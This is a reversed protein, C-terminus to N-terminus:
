SKFWCLHVVHHTQCLTMSPTILFVFFLWVVGLKMLPGYNTRINACEKCNLLGIVIYVNATMKGQLLCGLTEMSSRLRVPNLGRSTGSLSKNSVTIVNSIIGFVAALRRPTCQVISM